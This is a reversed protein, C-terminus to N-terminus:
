QITQRPLFHHSLRLTSSTNLFFIQKSRNNIELFILKYSTRRQLIRVDNAANKLSLNIAPFVTFQNAM